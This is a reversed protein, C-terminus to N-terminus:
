NGLLRPHIRNQKIYKFFSSRGTSLAIFYVQTSHKTIVYEIKTPMVLEISMLRLLSLSNTISLSAQYEVTWPVVSDSMVSCSFQVSELKEVHIRNSTFTKGRFFCWM